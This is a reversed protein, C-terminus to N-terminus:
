LKLKWGEVQENSVVGSKTPYWRYNYVSITDATEANSDKSELCKTLKITHADLDFAEDIFAEPDETGYFGASATNTIQNDGVKVNRVVMDAQTVVNSANRIFLREEDPDESPAFDGSTVTYGIEADFCITNDFDWYNEPVDGTVKRANDVSYSTLRVEAADNSLLYPRDGGEFHVAEGAGLWHGEVGDSPVAAQTSAETTGGSVASATGSGQIVDSMDGDDGCATVALALTAAGALFATRKYSHTMM